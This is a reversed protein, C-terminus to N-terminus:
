LASGTAVMFRFLTDVQRATVIAAPLYSELPFTTGFSSRRSQWCRWCRPATWFGRGLRAPQRETRLWLISERWAMISAECRSAGVLRATLLRQRGGRCVRAGALGRQHDRNRGRRRRSGCRARRAGRGAAFEARAFASAESGGRARAVLDLAPLRHGRDGRHLRLADDRSYRRRCRGRREADEATACDAMALRGCRPDNRRRRYRSGDPRRASTADFAVIEAGCAIVAGSRRADAYHLARVRSVRTQDARRDAVRGASAGGAPARRGRGPGSRRRGRARRAGDGRHRQPDDLASGQWAQVSVILGGRLAELLSVDRARNRSRGLSAILSCFRARPPNTDRPSSEAHPAQARVRQSRARSLGRRCSGGSARRTAPEGCRGGASSSRSGIPAASRSREFRTSVWRSRHLRPSGTARSRAAMFPARLTACPVADRLVRM